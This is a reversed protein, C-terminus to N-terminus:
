DKKGKRVKEKARHKSLTSKAVIKGALIEGTDMDKLEYCKAFGGKGLFRGKAYRKGSAHDRIIVPGEPRLAATSSPASYHSASTGHRPYASTAM